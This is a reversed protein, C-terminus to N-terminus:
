LIDNCAQYDKLHASEGNIEIVVENSSLNSTNLVGVIPEGALEYGFVVISESTIEPIVQWCTFNKEEDFDWGNTSLTQINDDVAISVQGIDEKNVAFLTLNLEGELIEGCPPILCSTIPDDNKCSIFLNAFLLITTLYIAKM